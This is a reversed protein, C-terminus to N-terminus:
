ATLSSTVELIGTTVVATTGTADTLRLEHEYRGDLDATAGADVTVTVEGNDPDTVTATIGDDTQSDLGGSAAPTARAAWRVSAGSLTRPDGTSHDTVTVVLRLTDGAHYTESVGIHQDIATM